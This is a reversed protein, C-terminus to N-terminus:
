RAKKQRPHRVDRRVGRALMFSLVDAWSMGALLEIRLRLYLIGVSIVIGFGYKSCIDM